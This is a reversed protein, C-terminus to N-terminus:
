PASKLAREYVAESFGYVHTRNIVAFPVDKNQDYEKRKVEADKDSDMNYETFKNKKSNLFDKAKVCDPCDNKTFLIVNIEKTKADLGAAKTDSASPGEDKYVKTKKGQPPPYDSIHTTGDDDEWTYFDAYATATLSLILAILFPIFKKM